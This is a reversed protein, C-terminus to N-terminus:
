EVVLAVIAQEQILLVPKGNMVDDVTTLVKGYVVEDGVAVTMPVRKGNSMLLGKGVALVKGHLPTDKGGGALIIGGASMELPEVLVRDNLPILEKNSM